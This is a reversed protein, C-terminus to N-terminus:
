KVRAPSRKVVKLRRIIWQDSLKRPDERSARGFTEVAEMELESVKVQPNQSELNFLMAFIQSRTLPLKDKRNGEGRRYFEIDMPQDRYGEKKELNSRDRDITFADTGISAGEQINSEIYPRLDMDAKFLSRKQKLQYIRESTEVLRSLSKMEDRHSEVVNNLAGYELVNLVLFVLSALGCLYIIAKVPDLGKGSKEKEAM